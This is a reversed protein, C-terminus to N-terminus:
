DINKLHSKYTELLRHLDDSMQMLVERIKITVEVLEKSMRKHHSKRINTYFDYIFHLLGDAKNQSKKFQSLYDWYEGYDSDDILPFGKNSKLTSLKIKNEKFTEIELQTREANRKKIDAKSLRELDLSVREREKEIENDRKAEPPYKQLLGLYFYCYQRLDEYIVYKMMDYFKQSNYDINTLDEKIDDLYLQYLLRLYEKKFKYPVAESLISDILVELNVLKRAQMRGFLSKKACVSLLNIVSLHLDM